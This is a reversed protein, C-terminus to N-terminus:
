YGYLLCKVVVAILCLLDIKHHHLAHLFSLQYTRLSLCFVKKEVIKSHCLTYCKYKFFFRQQITNHKFPRFIFIMIM